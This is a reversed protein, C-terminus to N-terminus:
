LRRKYKSLLKNYDLLWKKKDVYGYTMVEDNLFIISVVYTNDDTPEAILEVVAGWDKIEVEM